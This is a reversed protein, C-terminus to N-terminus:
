SELSLVVKYRGAMPSMAVEYARQIQDQHFCHTILLEVLERHDELYDRAAYLSARRDSTIGGMVTLNKRVVQEMDVPYIDQDPIGFYFVAGRERM